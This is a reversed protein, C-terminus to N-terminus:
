RRGIDTEQIGYIDFFLPYFQSKWGSLVFTFPTRNEYGRTPNVIFSGGYPPSSTVFSYYETASNTYYKSGIKTSNTITLGLLYSENKFLAGPRLIITGEAEDIFM